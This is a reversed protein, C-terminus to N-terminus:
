QACGEFLFEANGDCMTGDSAAAQPCDIVGWIRSPAIGMNANQTFTVTCNSQSLNAILGEHDNFGGTVTSQAPKGDSGITITGSITLSGENGYQANATVSYSNGNQAVDCNVTIPVGNQSSGSTVTVIPNGEPNGIQWTDNVAGCVTSSNSGPSVTWTIAAQPTPANNNSCGPALALLLAAGSLLSLFIANAHAM